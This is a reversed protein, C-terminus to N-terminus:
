GHSQGGTERNGAKGKLAEQAVRGIEGLNADLNAYKPPPRRPADPAGTHPFANRCARDLVDASIPAKVTQVVLEQENHKELAAALRDMSASLKLAAETMGQLKLPLLRMFNLEAVCPPNMASM